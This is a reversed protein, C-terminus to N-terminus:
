KQRLNEFHAADASCLFESVHMLTEVVSESCNLSLAPDKLSSNELWTFYCVNEYSAETEKNATENGRINKGKEVNGKRCLDRYKFYYQFGPLM